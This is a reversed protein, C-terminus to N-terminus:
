FRVKLVSDNSISIKSIKQFQFYSITKEYIETQGGRNKRSGGGVVAMGVVWDLRGSLLKVM